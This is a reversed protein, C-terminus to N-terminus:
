DFTLATETMYSYRHPGPRYLVLVCMSPPTYCALGVTAAMAEAGFEGEDEDSSSDEETLGAARREAKATAVAEAAAAAAAAAAELVREREM